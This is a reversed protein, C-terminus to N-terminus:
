VALYNVLHNHWEATGDASYSIELEAQRQWCKTNGPQGESWTTTQSITTGTQM